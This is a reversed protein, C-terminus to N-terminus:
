DEMESDIREYVLKLIKTNTWRNLSNLNKNLYRHERIYNLWEYNNLIEAVFIIDYKRPEGWAIGSWYGDRNALLSDLLFEDSNSFDCNPSLCLFSIPKKKKCKGDFSTKQPCFKDGVYWYVDGSRSVLVHKYAVLDSKKM